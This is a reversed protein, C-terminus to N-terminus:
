SLGDTMGHSQALLMECHLHFRAELHLMKLFPVIHRLVDIRWIKWKDQHQSVCTLSDNEGVFYCESCLHGFLREEEESSAGVFLHALFGSLGFVNCLASYLVKIM